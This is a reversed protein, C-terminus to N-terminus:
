KHGHVRQEWTPVPNGHLSCQKLYVLDQPRM